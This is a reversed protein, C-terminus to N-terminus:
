VTRRPVIFESSTLVGVRVAFGADGGRGGSLKLAFNMTKRKITTGSDPILAVMTGPADLWNRIAENEKVAITAAKVPRM